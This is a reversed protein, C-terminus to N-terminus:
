AKEAQTFPKKIPEKDVTTPLHFALV